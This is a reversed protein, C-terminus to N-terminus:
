RGIGTKINEVEKVFEQYGMWRVDEGWPYYIKLDSDTIVTSIHYATDPAQDDKFITIGQETDMQFMMEGTQPEVLTAHKLTEYIDESDEIPSETLAVVCHGVYQYFGQTKEPDFSGCVTYMYGAKDIIRDETSAEIDEKVYGAEQCKDGLFNYEATFLLSLDECDGGKQSYILDLSKLFDSKKTAEEDTEYKIGNIKNTTHICDLKIRCRETRNGRGTQNVICNGLEKKIEEYKTTKNLDNNEKFWKMSERVTREFDELKDKTKEIEIEKKQSSTSLSSYDDKLQGYQINTANYKEKLLSHKKEIANYNKELMELSSKTQTLEEQQRVTKKYFIVSGAASVIIMTVLIVMIVIQLKEKM